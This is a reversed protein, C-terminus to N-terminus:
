YCPKIEDYSPALPPHQNGNLALYIKRTLEVQKEWYQKSIPEDCKRAVLTLATIFDGLHTRLDTPLYEWGGLSARVPALDALKAEAELARKRWHQSCDVENDYAGRDVSAPHSNVPPYAKCLLMFLDRMKDRHGLWKDHAPGTPHFRILFEFAVAAPVLLEHIGPMAELLLELEESAPIEVVEALDNIKKLALRQALIVAHQQTLNEKQQSIIALANAFENHRPPPAKATLMEKDDSM